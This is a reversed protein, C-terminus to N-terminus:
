LKKRNKFVSMIDNVVDKSKGRKISSIVCTNLHNRLILSDIEALAAQVASSQHLIDICYNNEEMMKRVKELHGQVIQLRKIISAKEKIKM